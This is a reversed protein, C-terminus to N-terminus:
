RTRIRGAHCDRRGPAGKGRRSAEPPPAGHRSSSAQAAAYLSIPNKKVEPLGEEIVDIAAQWNGARYEAFGKAVLYYPRFPKVKAKTLAREILGALRGLNEPVPGLICIKAARAGAYVDDDEAFRELMGRSVELYRPGQDTYLLLAALDYHIIHSQPEEALASEYAAIAKSFDKSAALDKAQILHKNQTGFRSPERPPQLTAPTEKVGAAAMVRAILETTKAADKGSLAALDAYYWHALVGDRPMLTLSRELAAQAEAHRGLRGYAKAQWGVVQWDRPNASLHREAHWLVGAANGADHHRLAQRLHWPAAQQGTPLSGLKALAAQREQWAGPELSTVAGRAGLELGTTTEVWLRLHETDGGRTDGGLPQPVTWQRVQRAQCMTALRKGDPSLAM